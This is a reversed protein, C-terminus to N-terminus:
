DVMKLYGLIVVILIVVGIIGFVAQETPSFATTNTDALATIAPPIFAATIFASVGLMVIVKVDIAGDENMQKLKAARMVSVATDYPERIKQRLGTFMGM